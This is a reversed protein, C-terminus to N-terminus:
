SQVRAHVISGELTHNLYLLCALGIAAPGVGSVLLGTRAGFAGVVVGGLALAGLEAGNRAGNYAAFARGRLAEPVREHILTRLLVNKLGHAVGGFAFGILATWLVPAVAAGALGLGQAVIAGLAVVALRGPPVRGPLGAAGFLMGVTWASILLGYGFSGAGLVDTVFFPEATASITFVCLAAIAGALTVALTRDAVLFAVGARARETRVPRRRARLLCAAGAVVLFSLADIALALRLQGAAGLVGGILPGASFGLARVSEMAGNARSLPVDGAAAPVLAFEAPQSLAVTFGLLAVLVLVLWLTDVSAVLALATAAQVLSVGILLARNEFRDVIAGALGAGLVVPAWLAFFVASVAFTSGTASRVHLVLPILALFDGLASLGAAGALLRLDRTM